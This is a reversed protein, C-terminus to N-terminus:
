SADIRALSYPSLDVLSDIIIRSILLGYPLSASINSDALIGVMYERFWTAWYISFKKLLCDLVYVDRNLIDSPLGKWSILTTAVIHALIRNDFGLSFSGFSTLDSVFSKSTDLSTEFNNPWINGHMFPIDGSFEAGFFDKFFFENLVIRNGLVLTEWNGNNPSLRLNAYFLHVHEECFEVGCM